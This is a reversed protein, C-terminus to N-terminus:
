MFSYHAVTSLFLVPPRCVCRTPLCLLNRSPLNVCPEEWAQVCSAPQPPCRRPPTSSRLRLFFFFYYCCGLFMLQVVTIIIHHPFAAANDLRRSKALHPHGQWAGKARRGRQREM